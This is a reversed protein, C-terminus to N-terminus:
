QDEKHWASQGCVASQITLTGTEENIRFAILRAHSGEAFTQPMKLLFAPNLSAMRLGDSLTCLRERLLWELNDKLASAAGAFINTGAICLRGDAHLEVKGGIPTMYPGAPMGALAVSDSVLISREISKASLMAKLTEAPLHHGDAIFTAHLRDHALQSWIPNPHRPLIAAIGNGLHTSLVAGADVADRIQLPTAHTHGIAVHVGCETLARIYATAGQWHPSLTVLRILGEAAEQWRQFESISPPRVHELEHAGRAGDEPSIHPGEIHIGPVALQLHPHSRRARAITAVAHRIKEESATVVTPLFATTGVALLEATLDAITEETMDDSNADFGGYGNVQLDVFGPALWVDSANALVIERVGTVRGETIQVELSRSTFPCRGSIFWTSM